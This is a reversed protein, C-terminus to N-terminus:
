IIFVKYIGSLKTCFNWNVRMQVINNHRIVQSAQEQKKITYRKTKVANDKLVIFTFHRSFFRFCEVNELCKNKNLQKNSLCEIWLSSYYLELLPLQGIIKKRIQVNISLLKASIWLESSFLNSEDFICWILKFQHM